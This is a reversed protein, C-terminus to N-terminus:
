AVINRETKSCGIAVSIASESEIFCHKKIRETCKLVFDVVTTFFNILLICFLATLIVWTPKMCYSEPISLVLVTGVICKGIHLWSGSLLIATIRHVYLLFLNLFKPVSFLIIIQVNLRIGQEKLLNWIWIKSHSFFVKRSLHLFSM